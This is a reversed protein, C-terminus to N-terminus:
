RGLLQNKLKQLNVSVGDEPPYVPRLEHLKADFELSKMSAEVEKQTLPRIKKLEIMEEIIKNAQRCIVIEEM